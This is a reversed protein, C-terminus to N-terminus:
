SVRWASRKRPMLFIGIIDDPFVRGDGAETGFPFLVIEDDSGLIM